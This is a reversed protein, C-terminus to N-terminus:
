QASEESALAQEIRMAIGDAGEAAAAERGAILTSRAEAHAGLQQYATALSLLAAASQSEPVGSFQTLLAVTGAADGAELLLRALSQRAAAFGADVDLAMQYYRKADAKRGSREALVGLQLLVATDAPDLSLAREFAQRAEVLRGERQRAVGLNFHLRALSPDLALAREYHEDAKAFNGQEARIGILALHAPLSDPNRVLAQDLIAAAKDIRGAAYHRRAQSVLPADTADMATLRQMLADTQLQGNGRLREYAAFNAAAEDAKVLRRHAEALAFYVSPDQQAANSARTLVRLATQEDGQRLLLQGKSLLALADGPQEKLAQDLLQGCEEYDGSALLLGAMRVKVMTDEPEIVLAQQFAELAATSEGNLSLVMGHYYAWRFEDDDLLRAREFSRAAASHQRYAALIMGLEGNVDANGPRKEVARTADSIQQQVAPLFNDTAVPLLPPLDPPSCACLLAGALAM